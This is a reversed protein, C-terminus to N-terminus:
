FLLERKSPLGMATFRGELTKYSVNNGSRSNLCDACFQTFRSSESFRPEGGHQLWFHLLHMIEDSDKYKSLTKVNLKPTFCNPQKLKEVGLRDFQVEYLKYNDDVPEIVFTSSDVNPIFGKVAENLKVVLNHITCFMAKISLHAIGGFHHYTSDTVDTEQWDKNKASATVILLEDIIQLIRVLFEKKDNRQILSNYSKLFRSCQYKVINLGAGKCVNFFEDKEM